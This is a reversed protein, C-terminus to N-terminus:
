SSPKLTLQQKCSCMLRAVSLTTCHALQSLTPSHVKEVKERTECEQPEACSVDVTEEIVLLAFYSQVIEDLGEHSNGGNLLACHVGEVVALVWHLGVGADEEGTGSEQSYNNSALTRGGSRESLSPAPRNRHPKKVGGTAPARKPAAKTALQKRPAIGETSKRATQKTRAM